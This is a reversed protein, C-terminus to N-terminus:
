FKIPYDDPIKWGAEFILGSCSEINTNNKCMQVRQDHSYFKFIFTPIKGSHYLGFINKGNAINSNYGLKVKSEIDECAKEDMCVAFYTNNWPNNLENNEYTKFFYLVTGDPLYGFVGKEGKEVKLFKMYPVYYKNFMELASDANLPEFSERKSDGYDVKSLNSAQLLSSSTKKLKEVVVQKRHKVVLTPITLAAVVGIIGLTILVEALTFASKKSLKVPHFVEGRELKPSPAIRLSSALKLLAPSTKESQQAFLNIRKEM